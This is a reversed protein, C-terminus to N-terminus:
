LMEQYITSALPEAGISIAPPHVIVSARRRYDAALRRADSATPGQYEEAAVLIARQQGRVSAWEELVGAAAELAVGEALRASLTTTDAVSDIEHPVTYTVRISEGGGDRIVLSAGGGMEAVRWLRVDLRSVPVEDVPYEIATVMSSESDWSTLTTVDYEGDVLDVDAVLRRPDLVTVAHALESEIAAAEAAADVPRLLQAVRDTLWTYTVAM